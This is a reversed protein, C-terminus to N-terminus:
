STIKPVNIKKLIVFSLLAMVATEIFAIRTLYHIGYHHAILGTVYNVIMNGLLAIVLVFSFATGSLDTYRNGVLGFMIPFGGALGAGLLILGSIAAPLGHGYELAACGAFLLAISAVLLKWVVVSRFVSGLLIRMVTIGAVFCSLAYLAEDPQVSLRKTLYTTTWNNIIGEFSSQCFLFFAILILVHDKLLTFSRAVPFGQLQKPPPFRVMLFIFAAALTIWGVSSVIIEFHFREQFIGLVLPMGLAGIGFFVGLLSLNAGKDSSSIDAVVANTAGNIAGGGLGFLFICIKLLGQSPSYAIGEFGICMCICSAFLLLKYGYKDCIPGFFLSGALIGFPLISFLTGSSSEDLLFKEKLGSAVSGLTILTVGFLLLGM